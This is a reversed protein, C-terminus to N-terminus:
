LLSFHCGVNAFVILELNGIESQYEPHALYWVPWATVVPTIIFYNSHSELLNFSEMNDLSVIGETM